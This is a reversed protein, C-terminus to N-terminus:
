LKAICGAKGSRHGSVDQRRPKKKKLSVLLRTIPPNLFGFQPFHLQIELLSSFRCRQHTWLNIKITAETTSIFHNMKVPSPDNRLCGWHKVIFYWFIWSLTKSQETYLASNQSLTITFIWHLKLGVTCEPVCRLPYLIGMICHATWTSKYAM